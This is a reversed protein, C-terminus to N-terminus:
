ASPTNDLYIDIGPVEVFGLRRYVAAARPTEPELHALHAGAAAARELLAATVATGFGRGEYAPLVCIGGVHTAHGARGDSRVGYGTAVPVGELLGLLVDVRPDALHPGSWPAEVAPDSGFAASDVSLVSDLDDPTAVRLELGPVAPATPVHLLHRGMLAKTLIRRGHPWAAGAPLRLGWTGARDSYWAAVGALDVLAVDDVDGSNWQPHDLGSSMLRVGPLEVADGGYPHRLAGEVQWADAHATRLLESTIHM